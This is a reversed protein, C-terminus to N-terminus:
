ERKEIDFNCPFITIHYNQFLESNAVTSYCSRMLFSVGGLVFDEQPCFEVSFWVTEAETESRPVKLLVGGFAGGSSM